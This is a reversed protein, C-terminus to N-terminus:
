IILNNELLLLDFSRFEMKKMQSTKELHDFFPKQFTVKISIEFIDYKVSANVSM